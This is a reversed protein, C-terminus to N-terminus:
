HQTWKKAHQYMYCLDFVASSDSCCPVNRCLWERYSDVDHLSGYFVQLIPTPQDLVPLPAKKPSGKRPSSPKQRDIIAKHALSNLRWAIQQTGNGHHLDIDFVIVRDVRHELYAIAM